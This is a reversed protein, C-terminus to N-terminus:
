YVGEIVRGGDFQPMPTVDAFSDGETGVPAACRTALDRELNGPLLLSPTLCHVMLQGRQGHAVVQHTDPDVVSVTVYPSFPDYICPDDDSLDLRESLPMGLAMTSGWVGTLKVEPLVESRYLYRTDAGMHAGGWEILEVNTRILEELEPRRCLRELLPPTLSLVHIPQSRLVWEAQDILHEAYADADESKGAAILRKVWRPDMDITFLLGRLAIVQRRLYESGIHPGSPLLALWNTDERHNRNLHAVAMECFDPLLVIRKPAGTTGGSDFVGVVEPRAGYGRPILDAVPVDRLENVLNPFQALDKFARIDTRPDFPLSTARELWFPSGTAPNFHWDMLAPIFEDSHPDVGQLPNPDTM